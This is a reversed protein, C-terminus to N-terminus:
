YTPIDQMIKAQNSTYDIETNQESYFKKLCLAKQIQIENNPKWSLKSDLIVSEKSLESRM